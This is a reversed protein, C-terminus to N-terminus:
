AGTCVRHVLIFGVCWYLWARAMVAPARKSGGSERLGGTSVAPCLGPLVTGSTGRCHPGRHCQLVQWKKVGCVSRAPGSVRSVSPSYGLVRQLHDRSKVVGWAMPVPHRPPCKSAQCRDGSDQVPSHSHNLPPHWCLSHCRAAKPRALLFRVCM